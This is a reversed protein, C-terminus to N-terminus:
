YVQIQTPLTRVTDGATGLVDADGAIQNVYGLVRGKETASRRQLLARSCAWLTVPHGRGRSLTTPQPPTPGCRLRFAFSGSRSLVAM